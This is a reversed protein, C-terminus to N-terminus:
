YLMEYYRPGSVMYKGNPEGLIKEYLRTRAIFDNRLATKTCIIHIAVGSAILVPFKKLQAPTFHIRNYGDIIKFEVWRPTNGIRSMYSDPLGKQFQNCSINEVNWEQARCHDTMPSAAWLTEKQKSM